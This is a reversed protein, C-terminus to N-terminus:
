KKEKKASVESAEKKAEKTEKLENWNYKTNSKEKQSDAYDRMEQKRSEFLAEEMEKVTEPIADDTKFHIMYTSEEKDPNTFVKTSRAANPNDYVNGCGTLWAEGNGAVVIKVRKITAESIRFQLM